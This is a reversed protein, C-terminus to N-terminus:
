MSKEYESAARNGDDALDTVSTFSSVVTGNEGVIEINILEHPDEALFYDIVVSPQPYQPLADKDKNTFSQRFRITDMPKFLVTKDDLSDFDRQRLTTINDLVWFSRGMTSIALDGRYIKIDTIPTVPLNQQFAHWSKGDNTSVFMGYETGAFLLGERQPDERVVRTPYNNPIGNKGDTLLQWRKGNNETKYIYPKWDGLQYRLVAIYAKAPDHPSPEIADVRGGPPLGRPTVDQWTKGNDRTVHVPGDNAGVWILGRTVPSERM